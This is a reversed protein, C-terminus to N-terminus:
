GCRSPRRCWSTSRTTPRWRMTPSGCRARSTGALQDHGSRVDGVRLRGARREAAQEGVPLGATELAITAARHGAARHPQRRGATVTVGSRIRSRRARSRCAPSASTRGQRGRGSDAGADADRGAAAARRRRRALRRAPLRQHARGRAAAADIRGPHQRGGEAGARLAHRRAGPKATAVAANLRDRRRRRACSSTPARPSCCSRAAIPGLCEAQRVADRAAATRGSGAIASAWATATTSCCSWKARAPASRRRTTSAPHAAARVGPHDAGARGAAGDAAALQSDQAPPRVSVPDAARVDAVPFPRDAEERAAHPAAARSDGARRARPLVPASLFQM